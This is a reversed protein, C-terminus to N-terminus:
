RRWDSETLYRESRTPGNDPTYIDRRATWYGAFGILASWELVWCLWAHATM